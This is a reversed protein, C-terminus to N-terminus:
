SDPNLDLVFRLGEFFQSEREYAGTDTWSAHSRSGNIGRSESSAISAAM